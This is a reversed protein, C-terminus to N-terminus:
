AHWDNSLFDNLKKNMSIQKSTLKGPWAVNQPLSALISDTRGGSEIGFKTGRDFLLNFEVYRGRRYLQFEKEDTSFKSNLRRDIIKKNVKKILKAYSVDQETYWDPHKKAQKILRKATKRLDKNPTM